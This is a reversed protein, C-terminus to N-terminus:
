KYHTRRMGERVCKTLIVTSVRVCQTSIKLIVSHQIKSNQILSNKRYKVAKFLCDLQRKFRRTIRSKLKFVYLALDKKGYCLGWQSQFVKGDSM